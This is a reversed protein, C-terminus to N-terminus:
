TGLTTGPLVRLWVAGGAINICLVASLARLDFSKGRGFIGRRAAQCYGANEVPPPVPFVTDTMLVEVLSIMLVIVNPGPRPGNTYIRGCLREVDVARSIHGHVRDIHRAIRVGHDCGARAAAHMHDHNGSPFVARRLFPRLIDMRRGKKNM